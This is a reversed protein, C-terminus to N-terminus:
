PRVGGEKLLWRRYLREFALFLVAMGEVLLALAKPTGFEVTMELVGTRLVGFLLASVVVGLPHSMGVLAVAISDFGLGPAFSDFFRHDLGLVQIAGAAGALAGSAFMAAYVTKSPSIGGYAAAIPNEGFSRLRFGWITRYIVFWLAAAIAPALLVGPAVPHRGGAPATTCDQRDDPYGAHVGPRATPECGPLARGPDSHSHTLLTTIVENVGRRVKLWAPGLALGRWCGRRGAPLGDRSRCPLKVAFGVWAAALGGVYIQGEVGINLLGATSAVGGLAAVLLPTASSCRRLTSTSGFSGRMFVEGAASPLYREGRIVGTIALALLLSIVPAIAKRMLRMPCGRETRDHAPGVPERGVSGDNAMEAAIRGSYMVAIRDSLALIEDLDFSILLVAAGRDRLEVIRRHIYDTAGVDLGRTPQAAVLLVHRGANRVVVIKQQNGGSFATAPLCMDEPVISFDKAVAERARSRRGHASGWHQM